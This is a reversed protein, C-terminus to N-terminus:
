VIFLLLVASVIFKFYRHKLVRKLQYAKDFTTTRPGRESPPRVSWRWSLRGLEVLTLSISPGVAFCDTDVLGHEKGM